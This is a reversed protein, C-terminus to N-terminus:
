GVLVHKAEHLALIRLKFFEQDRFGYAQRQLLKIKTNTGELPGTSIPYDYWALLGTRHGALTKGFAQLMRVGSAQALEIWEDLFIRARARDSQEWFLRLLEKLYYATAM